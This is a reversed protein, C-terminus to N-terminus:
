GGMNRTPRNTSLLTFQKRNAKGDLNFKSKDAWILGKLFNPDEQIKVFPM